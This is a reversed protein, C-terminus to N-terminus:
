HTHKSKREQYYLIGLGILTLAAVLVFLLTLSDM